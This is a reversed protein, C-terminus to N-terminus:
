PWRGAALACMDAGRPRWLWSLWLMAALMSRGAWDMATGHGAVFSLALTAAPLLACAGWVALYVALAARCAARQWWTPAPDPGPSPGRPSLSDFPM